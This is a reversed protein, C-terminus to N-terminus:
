CFLLETFCLLEALLRSKCVQMGSDQFSQNDVQVLVLRTFEWILTSDCIILHHARPFSPSKPDFLLSCAVVDDNNNEGVKMIAHM